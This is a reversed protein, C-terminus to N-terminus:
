FKSRIEIETWNYVPRLDYDTLNVNPGDRIQVCKVFFRFRQFRVFEM